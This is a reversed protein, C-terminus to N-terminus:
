RGRSGKRSDGKSSKGGKGNKRVAKSATRNGSKESKGKKWVRGEARDRSADLRKKDKGSLRKKEGLISEPGNLEARGTKKAIMKEKESEFWTRKPRSMIESEHQMINEGKKVQMEAKGFQKEEKEEQLVEGVEEEMDQIKKAWMDALAPDVVRSVIKAGQVKGSKVAM